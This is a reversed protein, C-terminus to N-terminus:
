SGNNPEKGKTLKKLEEIENQMINLRNQFSREIDAVRRPMAMYDACARPDNFEFEGQRKPKSANVKGIGDVTIQGLNRSFAKAIPDYVGWEGKSSLELRGIKMNLRDELEYAIQICDQLLKIRLNEPNDGDLPPPIFEITPNIGHNIHLKIGNIENCYQDWNNMEVRHWDVDISPMTIIQAKFRINEARCIRTDQLDPYTYMAVFNKGAQTLELRKFADRGNEKIYGMNQAKHLYYFVHSKNIQRYEAIESSTKGSDVMKLIPLLLTLSKPYFKSSPKM